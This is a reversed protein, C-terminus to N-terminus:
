VYLIKKGSRGKELILEQLKEDLERKKDESLQVWDDTLRAMERIVDEYGNLGAVSMGRFCLIIESRHSYITTIARYENYKRFVICLYRSDEM